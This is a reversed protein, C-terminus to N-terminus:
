GSLEFARDIVRWAGEVAHYKTMLAKAGWMGGHDVGNVWDDATRDLHAKIADLEVAMETVGKQVEPHWAMSRTM